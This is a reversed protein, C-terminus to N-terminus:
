LHVTFGGLPKARGLRSMYLLLFGFEKRQKKQNVTCIHYSVILGKPGSAGKRPRMAAEAGAHARADTCLEAALDKMGYQVIDGVDDEEEGVGRESSATRDRGGEERGRATGEWRGRKLARRDLMAGTPEPLRNYPRYHNYLTRAMHLVCGRELEGEWEQRVRVPIHRAIAVLIHVPYILLM